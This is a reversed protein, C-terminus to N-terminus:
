EAGGNDLVEFLQLPKEKGKVFIAELPRLRFLPIGRQALQVRVDKAVLADLSRSVIITKGLRECVSEIRAVTNVTDSIVTDDMRNEEGITGIIMKGYHIGMWPEIKHGESVSTKNMKEICDKIELAAGIGDLESEPFLAMFGGSLFKSVFGNHKKIIPAVQKLCEKFIQFHEDLEVEHGNCKISMKSFMICMEINSYDGLKTKIVSEKNLLTLFEQPVFRLYAENLRKLEDTKRVTQKYLDNQIVAILLMQIILYIVIFFAFMSFPIFTRIKTYIIDIVAGLIVIFFSLLLYVSYRKRRVINIVSAVIVYVSVMGMCVQFVPVLKNAIVAPICLSVVGIACISTLLVYRLVPEWIRKTRPPYMAFIMQLTAGPALWLVMYELKVKFEATLGPFIIGMSCYGATACRLAFMLTAIALYLYEMKNRNIFFQILNLLTIFVLSGLVFTYFILFGTNFRAIDEAPGIMVSDSLGGKRYFYNTIFLILEANGKSDPYFECLIPKIKSYSVKDTYPNLDPQELIKYPDGLTYIEKRNVYIACSTKPADEIFLAYKQSPDLGTCVYRYCAYTKPDDSFGSTGDKIHQNWYGPVITKFDAPIKNNVCDITQVPNKQFYLDWEGDLREIKKKSESWLNMCSVILFAAFVIKKISRKM